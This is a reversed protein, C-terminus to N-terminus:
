FTNDMSAGVDMLNIQLDLINDFELRVVFHDDQLLQRKYWPLNVALQSTKVAFNNFLTDLFEDDNNKLADRLLNFSWAGKSKRMSEYSLDKFASETTLRGTCQYNNWATVHTFTFHEQDKGSATLVETVWQVAALLTEKGETLVVDIFFSSPVEEYFKGFPGSNHKYIANDKITYLQNRSELYFDPKYTHFFVWDSLAASYSVTFDERVGDQIDRFLYCVGEVKRLYLCSDDGTTAGSQYNAASPNNCGIM